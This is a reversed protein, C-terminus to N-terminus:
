ALDHSMRLRHRQAARARAVRPGERRQGAVGTVADHEPLPAKIDLGIWDLAAAGEGLRERTCAARQAARGRFGLERVERLADGLGAQLTPEGGSFVVGDLLGRRRQLFARVHDWSM